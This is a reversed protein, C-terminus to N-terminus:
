FASTLHMTVHCHLSCRRFVNQTSVPCIATMRANPFILCSSRLNSAAQVVCCSRYGPLFLSLFFFLSSLFTLFFSLCLFFCLNSCSKILSSAPSKLGMWARSSSFMLSVLASVWSKQKERASPSVGLHQFTQPIVGPCYETKLHERELAPTGGGFPRCLKTFFGVM